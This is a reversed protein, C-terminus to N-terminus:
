DKKDDKKDKKGGMGIVVGVAVIVVIVLLVSSVTESSNGIGIQSIIWDWKGTVVLVAVILAIAIIGGFTWRVSAPVKFEEGHFAFGWLVLFVLIVILSVALFPILNTIMSTATGFAITILGVAAAVIADIQTKEKGLVGTKQLVAFVVAFVLVFPLVAEMFIPSSLITQVSMFIKM